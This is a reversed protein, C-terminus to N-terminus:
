PRCTPPAPGLAPTVGLQPNDDFMLLWKPMTTVHAELLLQGDRQRIIKLDWPLMPVGNEGPAFEETADTCGIRQEFDGIQLIVPVNNRGDFTFVAKQGPMASPDIALSSTAVVHPGACASAAISSVALAALWLSRLRNM